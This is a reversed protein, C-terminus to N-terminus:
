VYVCVSVCLRVALQASFPSHTSSIPPFCFSSFFVRVCLPRQMRSAVSSPASSSCSSAPHSTSWLLVFTLNTSFAFAFLFRLAFAAFFPVLFYLCLQRIYECCYISLSRFLSHGFSLRIVSLSVSLSLCLPSLPLYLSRIHFLLM